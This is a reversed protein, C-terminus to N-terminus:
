NALKSTLSQILKTLQKGCIVYESSISKYQDVSMLGADKAFELNFLVEDNSGLATRLFNVIDRTSKERGYGEAINAPISRAARSLQDALDFQRKELFTNTLTNIQLALRYARQYVELDRYTSM